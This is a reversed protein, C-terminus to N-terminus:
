GRSEKQGICSSSDEGVKEEVIDLWSWFFTVYCFLVYINSQVPSSEFRVYITELNLGRTSSLPSMVKAKKM